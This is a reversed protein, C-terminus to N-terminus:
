RPGFAVESWIGEEKLYNLEDMRAERLVNEVELQKGYVAEWVWEETEDPEETEVLCLHKM